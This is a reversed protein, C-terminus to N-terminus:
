FKSCFAYKESRYSTYKQIPVLSSKETVYKKLVLDYKFGYEYEFRSVIIVV